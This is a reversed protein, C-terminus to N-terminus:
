TKTPAAGEAAIQKKFYEFALMARKKLDAYQPKDGCRDITEQLAILTSALDNKKEYCNAIYFFPNPDESAFKAYQMFTRIAADIDNLLMHCSALGYLFYSNEQDLIYLFSFLNRAERYNGNDYFRKAKGYIKKLHDTTVALSSKSIVENEILFSILEETIIPNNISTKKM